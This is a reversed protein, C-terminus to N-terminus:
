IRGFSQYIDQEEISLREIGNSSLNVEIGGRETEIIESSNELEGSVELESSPSELSDKRGLKRENYNALFPACDEQFNKEM